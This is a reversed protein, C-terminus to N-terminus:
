IKLPKLTQDKDIRELASWLYEIIQRATANAIERRGLPYLGTLLPPSNPKSAVILGDYSTTHESVNSQVDIRYNYQLLIKLCRLHLEDSHTSVFLHEISQSLLSAQANELMEVEYGQIDSHLLFLNPIQKNCLFDDIRLRESSVFDNIHEAALNNYRFNRKGVEIHMADPEVLIASAHKLSNLFWMSYHGWYSGLELIVLNERTLNEKILAQFIFEELPEHVGRNIVLIDSFNGYYSNHEDYGAFLGNHLRVFRDNNVHGALPHREILQNLPDSIIDRWRDM